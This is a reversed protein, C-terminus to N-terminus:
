KYKSTDNVIIPASVYNKVYNPGGQEDLALNWDIWGAVMNNLDEIIAKAYLEARNWSGM